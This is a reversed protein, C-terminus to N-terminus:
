GVAVFAQAEGFQFAAVAHDIENEVLSKRVFAYVIYSLADDESLIVRQRINM